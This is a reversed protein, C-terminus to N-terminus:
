IILKGLELSQIGPRSRCDPANEQSGRRPQAPPFITTGSVFVDAGAHACDAPPGSILGAMWASIIASGSKGSGPRLSQQSDQAVDTSSRSAELGPNVTMVLLFDIQELYPQIM